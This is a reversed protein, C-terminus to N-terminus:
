YRSSGISCVVFSGTQDRAGGIDSLEDGERALVVGTPSLLEATGGVLVATFNHPWTVDVPAGDTVRLATLADDSRSLKVPLLAAAPCSSSSAQATHLSLPTGSPTEAGAGCSALLLAGILSALARGRSRVNLSGIGWSGASVRQNLRLLSRRALLPM